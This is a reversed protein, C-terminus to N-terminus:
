RFLSLDIATAMAQNLTALYVKVSKGKAKDVLQQLGATIQDATVVESPILNSFGIDNIGILVIVHSAGTSLLADREFRDIAKPGFVDHLIRNGSIGANVVSYGASGANALVRSSLDNPHRRSGDITSNFGDTISDGFAVITPRARIGALPTDTGPTVAVSMTRSHVPPPQSASIIQLPSRRRHRRVLPM